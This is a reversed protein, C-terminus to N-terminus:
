LVELDITKQSRGLEKLFAFLLNIRWELESRHHLLVICGASGPLANEKHLGIGIRQINSCELISSNELSSSIPFFEGVGTQGPAQGKNLPNLWLHWKGKPIPSKGTIGDTKSFMRQGSRAQFRVFDMIQGRYTIPVIANNETKQLTFLGDMTDDRRDYYAKYSM